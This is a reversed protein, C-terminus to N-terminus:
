QLNSLAPNQPQRPDDRSRLHSGPLGRRPVTSAPTIRHDIPPQIRHTGDDPTEMHTRIRSTRRNGPSQRLDAARRHLSPPAPPGSARRGPHRPMQQRQIATNGARVALNRAQPLGPPAGAPAGPGAAPHPPSSRLPPLRHRGPRATRQTAGFAPLASKIATLTTGSIAALQAAADDAWPTLQDHQWRDDHWRAKVSFWPPLAELLTEPQHPQGRRPPEPIVGTNGRDGPIRAAAAPVAKDPQGPEAPRIRQDPRHPLGPVPAAPAQATGTGPLVDAQHRPLRSAHGRDAAGVARLHPDDDLRQRCYAAFPAFDDARAAPMGPIRHGRVYNRITEPSHGYTRAIARVPMGAAHDALIQEGRDRPLMNTM